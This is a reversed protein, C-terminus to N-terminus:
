SSNYTWDAFVMWNEDEVVPDFNKSCFIIELLVIGFSYVDVKVTVLVTKFWELAVYEKIGRIGTM